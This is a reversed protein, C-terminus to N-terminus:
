RALKAVTDWTRTTVADGFTKGILRMFVPGKPGPVYASLVERGSVALIRADDLEIPLTLKGRPEERLFTVVRKSNKSLRFSAYPDKAQLARLAEVPRVFAMFVRGLHKKMAAEAKRELADESAARASFLVNGSGLVTRVDSFGALEFSKKLEPMKVNTPMVGRLMAAFRDM